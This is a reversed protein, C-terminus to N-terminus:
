ADYFLMVYLDLQVKEPKQTKGQCIYFYSLAQHLCDM